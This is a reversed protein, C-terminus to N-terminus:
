QRALPLRQLYHLSNKDLVFEMSRSYSFFFSSTRGAAISEALKMLIGALKRMAYGFAKRVCLFLTTGVACAGLGFRM